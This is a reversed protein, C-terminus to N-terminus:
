RRLLTFHGVYQKNIEKIDIVYWYDTTPMDRGLYTGDWGADTGRYKVLEKGFRDYITVVADPYINALGEVEWTDNVGDGNPSFYSPIFLKPAEVLHEYAVSICGLRDIVYFMRIGFFLDSKVSNDDFPFHDVKYEFPPTGSGDKVIIERVRVDLSDIRDIVPKGNVEITIEDRGTCAGRTMNVYYTTTAEPSETIMATQKEGVFASSTWSYTDANYSSANMTITFGECIAANEDNTWISGTLPKDVKVDVPFHQESCVANGAKIYYTYVSQHNSGTHVPYVKVKEGGSQILTSRDSDYWEITTGSPVASLLKLEVGEGEIGNGCVPPVDVMINILSTVSMTVSNSTAQTSNVCTENSTLVCTIVDGDSPTYSYIANNSGVNGGNVKWQYTPASGGHTPVATFTVNTGACVPSSPNSSIVVDPTLTPSVTMTVSNSTATTASACAVNSTLVCTIVDGNIPTYTYTTSNTGVNGGNVKWQYTPTSGGNTPVATFTVSTGACVPSVPNSSISVAPVLTPNVTMTVTNSTATTPSACNANSTLICTIADGNAPTYTYTTNDTGVNGGNVKWQYSPSSGGNTPTATFTVSTGACVSSVPNSSISVAPVLTPNVTMTVANSTATTPSACGENSTMVCTIEDGNNPAYSYTNGGTGVNGGNVKWQYAPASGGHTPTATFTVSTGACLPSSSSESIAVAPVLTSNVTMTVTNSTATTPSACGESSTLICTIEDGDAPIYTYTDGGTGVGGGNVQWQYSPSSGGGTPTATFTVSTGACVPSAPNSSVVVTPIITTSINMIVTNSTATAPTACDANSTLICTIEDGNAPAYTYTDGGTGVGGGNIQWQYTPSSGGNTPVATFTVNTGACVPSAPSESIVVSPVLAPNVTMTVANSTATTPSACDANSTLICTIEDGNAPTYAFTSGSAGVQLVNEVYWQYTPTSGGNDPAATFTVSTGACLLTPANNSISVAPTVRSTVSKTTTREATKPDACEASSTMVVKIVEGDSPTYTFTNGSVGVSQLVDEVYWQYTPTTGGGSVPTATFTVSTSQCLPTPANDSISVVPVLNTTVEITMEDDATAPDVCIANSTMVVKIVEGNSPTYIFTASVESQETSGVYWQYTPASGQNTPSATFAVSTGSCLPNGADSSLTVTPTVKSTVSMTETDEATQPDACSANSTMVVKIVEGNSPTYIFTASVESQETSGVYWQYTPATGGNDPTATFTVSTGACLPTPANNSISVAPIVKSTVSKTTTREAIKPDVCEADSTMVVKIVEGDAPTYTFTNGSVGVSQLVDDVYWQYTPTTGGGSVPTATFTVSTGQCLPTPANESISVVPVLNTTVEITMEDDATAPDVCVANSTMAVKIVEGDVPTYVLTNGSVGTQLTSGVYWQYIPASGQNTPSATFTVSTGSCLPNGANSSLTVTPTVKSTVSMTETDEATQPDACAANSTMVVKIVEGNSPTYVFTASVESQETSGVYWQYTPATGGNDPTATFTVSTGACLPTPANNSISVEPIVKSTVSKTTTREATKPDACEADSTMVVKIVEGNSPTYTFTNGSVGVSQLVDEVYWQYTPTTGGGSVPTATFTVSTGQCLPTPVNDSISVSPVLNTTVEITMEDDATVPDVCVANSTMVVKIVEGDSPTYEFTNGSVGVSQLVDDVYWQYTPITGGNDPAATFTVSTGSCLPNGADSSLTVTPTVKSTVSMTETDEATQPDACSANSTMVVKIVEGNSPTYVFTASVESQETSGVYWQYTPATGSNDPTATFTVSTGQCLPAPANNSLSVEPTIKSTVSKSTTREATKPDACEADSTMVVKIVEGDAPTYTFTNGSVGVSQLVDDVYWQYTPNTGGGNDPSATFTVSTGQCLPTPANDSISVSPVLNTTVEITMEDDATAPDVCIANSTMVVKIVEGDSPTYVLTNGSVGTQLTSGVYWQYTPTSGQNTPSATFTVSTGSCLPNGANSSLTVTPTVKATVSMTETDEATQPDACSANSTMVVKIVEGNSPTYVFTASVESQETTGVYWQYTPATGGNDPTATFTVSTGACLPTPANNSISVEPTVKATVSKTTTREATKPDACEADSTMVVKIVEGDVPTYTFTNGSVGVSQLVDDVYWQYTPTTGGGSVPTATFTVSTSQCLPTPANDNISVSPVLNTTVEITMEDDATAPDVCIANSTMVVKIVEGDAPTYVLTNGSVGIQLTSGVYWQYTPFSGQNTPTATFTVSTGQCLPTPANDSISVTPVVKATVSMTKTDEVTQPDACVANSTMVVKIVEGNAPTYVLTNGSVGTQLTSGVYWQYTPSSGQNTPTATFTVSTGQCLPTPANDSISVTPVVKATVSMTKTDEVTQPDACLANSTTVVKIVEGNAPTYVLTNGSVGTQLTSGVYWQYTPSSGQNTPTATFTVSTGQCLPTPANDSISVTPVVKATVSMTKTDEVTPPDACLANSTMVVKIVEGNAPTYVLTNGSVGTQLTSGVYWQYTPSSGQNTPSATFTVSTGQCLPTPANDSISVTPVVKATVSMTKTDEATKPTACTANSTMIVKIVEGNNPAYTFTNGSVGVSQLSAGVYWQYTPASGQNTPTATFTVSTGQCLPTPANDSITVTPVCPVEDCQNNLTFRQIDSCVGNNSYVIFHVTTPANFTHTLNRKTPDSTRAVLVTGDATKWEWESVLSWDAFGPMSVSQPTDFCKTITQHAGIGLDAVRTIVFPKSVSTNRCNDEYSEHNPNIDFDQLGAETAVVVRFYNKEGPFNNMDVFYTSDATIVSMNEWTIGDISHQHLYRVNAAGYYQKLLTSPSTGMNFTGGGCIISDQMLTKVNLFADVHPPSCVMIKFEDLLHDDATGVHGSESYIKFRVSTYTATKPITFQMSIPQWGRSIQASGPKGNKIVENLVNGSPDEMALRIIAASTGTQTDPSGPAYYISFYFTKGPCIDNIQKSFFAAGNDLGNPLDISLIGGMRDGTADARGLTTSSSQPTVKPISGGIWECLNDHNTIAYGRGNTGDCGVKCNFALLAPFEVDYFSKVRMNNPNGQAGTCDTIPRINGNVDMYLNNPLFTGFNDYFIEKRSTANGSEDSCCPISTVKFEKTPSGNIKCRYWVTSVNIEDLISQTNGGVPTWTAGGPVTAGVYKEWAYTNDGYDKDLSLRIREGQCVEEGQSSVIKVDLCARIEIKTIGLVMYNSFSAPTRLSLTISGNANADLTTKGTNYSFRDGKDLVNCFSGGLTKTSRSDTFVFNTGWNSLAAASRDLVFGEILVEYNGGPLLGTSSIDLLTKNQEWRVIYMPLNINPYGANVTNPNNVVAYYNTAGVNANTGALTLPTSLFMSPGGTVVSSLPYIGQQTMNSSHFDTSGVLLSPCSASATGSSMNCTYIEGPPLPVCGTVTVNTIAIIDVNQSVGTRIQFDYAGAATSTADYSITYENGNTVNAANSTVSNAPSVNALVTGTTNTLRLLNPTQGNSSTSSSLKIIRAVVTITIGSSPILGTASFNFLTTETTSGYPFMIMNGGAPYTAVADRPSRVAGYGNIGVNANSSAFTQATTLSSQAHLTKEADNLNYYTASVGAKPAFNTQLLTTRVNRGCDQSSINVMVGLWVLLPLYFYKKM